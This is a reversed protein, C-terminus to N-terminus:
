LYVGSAGPTGGECALTGPTAILEAIKYRHGDPCICQGGHPGMEAPDTSIVNSFCDLEKKTAMDCALDACSEGSSPDPLAGAFIVEGDPCTCRGGMEGTITPDIVVVNKRKLTILEGRHAKYIYRNKPTLKKINVSGGTFDVFREIIIDDSAHSRFEIHFTQTSDVGAMTALHDSLSTGLYCDVQKHSHAGGSTLTVAAASGNVCGLTGPSALLEGVM